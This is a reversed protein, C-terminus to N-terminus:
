SHGRDPLITVGFIQESELYSDKKLINIFGLFVRVAAGSHHAAGGPWEVHDDPVVHVPPSM